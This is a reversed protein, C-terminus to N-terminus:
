FLLSLCTLGGDMKRFESMEVEIINYRLESIKQKTKPFGKPVMLFNNVFLCNASYNEDEDVKIINFLKFRNSFEKIAILNNNSIYTVGTKLHLVSKVPITSSTYGDKSLIIALQKAGAKNTRKSLGIYFHNNIRLIDGGDITGPSKICRIKKYNSIIEAIEEKEGRRSLDGPQTIIASKETIIATDEVFCGDPHRLDPELVIVKLGCKKLAECYLRHQLAAKEYKPKGLNATTIGKAFNIGPKKVIAHTYM